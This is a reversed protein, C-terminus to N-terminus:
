KRLFAVFSAVFDASPGTPRSALSVFGSLESLNQDFFYGEYHFVLDKPRAANKPVFLDFAIHPPVSDYVKDGQEFRINTLDGEFDKPVSMHGRLTGDPLLELTLVDVFEREDFFLHLGYARVKTGSAAAHASASVFAVAGLSLLSFLALPIFRAIRPSLPTM